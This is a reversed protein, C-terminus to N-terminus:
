YLNSILYSILFFCDIAWLIPSTMQQEMEKRPLTKRRRTQKQKRPTPIRWQRCPYFFPSYLLNTTQKTPLGLTPFYIFIPLSAM